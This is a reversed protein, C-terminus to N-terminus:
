STEGVTLESTLLRQENTLVKHYPDNKILILNDFSNTGWQLEPRLQWPLALM